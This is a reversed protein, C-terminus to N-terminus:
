RKASVVRIGGTPVVLDADDVCYVDIATKVSCM